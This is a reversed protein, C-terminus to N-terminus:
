RAAKRMLAGSIKTTPLALISRTANASRKGAGPSVNNPPAKWLKAPPLLCVSSEVKRWAPFTSVTQGPAEASPETQLLLGVRRQTRVAEQAAALAANGALAIPLVVGPFLVTNSVPLIILVDEANM